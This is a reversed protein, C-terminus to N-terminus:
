QILTRATTRDADASASFSLAPAVGGNNFLSIVTDVSNGATTALTANGATTATATILEKLKTFAAVTITKQMANQVKSANARLYSIGSIVSNYNTTLAIDKAVGETILKVDRACKDIDYTFNVFEDNVYDVVQEAVGTKGAVTVSNNTAAVFTHDSTETSIGVNVTITTPSVELVSLLNGFATGDTTRPHYLVTRGNPYDPLEADSACTFALAGEAISVKDGTEFPHMGISLEMIGTTPAYEVAYPTFEARAAAVGFALMDERLNADAWTISPRTEAPVGTLNGVRLV